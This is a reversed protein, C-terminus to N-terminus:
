APGGGAGRESLLVEALRLDTPTTIKFNPEKCPLVEVVGGAREVLWADDTAAALTEESAAELVRQLTARRFVQPTQAAWLHSRDLTRRVSRGDPAVEKVTDALPAAVVVADAGSRELQELARRFVASSTLPRAADHVLVVASEPAAALAARVSSSRVAGGAVCTAGHLRGMSEAISEAPLAVIVETVEELQGVTELCWSVMPKGAVTVLAKPVRDGLREGRGAAVILAVAM